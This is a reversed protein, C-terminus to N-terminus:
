PRSWLHDAPHFGSQYYDIQCRPRELYGHHHITATFAAIGSRRQRHMTPSVVITLVFFPSVGTQRQPSM